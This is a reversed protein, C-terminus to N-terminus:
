FDLALDDFLDDSLFLEHEEPEVHHKTFLSCAFCFMPIGFGSLILLISVWFGVTHNLPFSQEGNIETTKPITTTLQVCKQDECFENFSCCSGVGCPIEDNKCDLVTTTAAVCKPEMRSHKAAHCVKNFDCCLSRGCRTEEPSCEPPLSTFPVATTQPGSKLNFGDIAM